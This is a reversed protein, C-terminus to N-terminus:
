EGRESRYREVGTQRELTDTRREGFRDRGKKINIIVAERREEGKTRENKWVSGDYMAVGGGMIDTCPLLVDSSSGSMM